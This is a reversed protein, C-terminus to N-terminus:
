FVDMFWHATDAVMLGLVGAGFYLSGTGQWIGGVIGPFVSDLVMGVLMFGALGYLVRGCTGLIPWHSFPHRHPIAYGYPLWYLYFLLGVIRYRNMALRESRTIQVLDLDPSLYIGSYCGLAAAGGLLVDGTLVFVATGVIPVLSITAGEHDIGSAM